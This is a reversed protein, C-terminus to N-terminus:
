AFNNFNFKARNHRIVTQLMLQFCRMVYSANGNDDNWASTKTVEKFSEKEKDRVLIERGLANDLTTIWPTTELFIQGIKFSYTLFPMDSRKKLSEFYMFPDIGLYIEGEIWSNNMVFEPPQSEQYVFFGIDIAWADQSLYTVQGCVKYRNMEVNVAVPSSCVSSQLSLPYFEIAFQTEQGVTFDSYNGDQIIWSDIGINLFEM